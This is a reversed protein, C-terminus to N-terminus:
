KRGEDGLLCLGECYDTTWFASFVQRIVPPGLVVKIRDTNKGFEDLM